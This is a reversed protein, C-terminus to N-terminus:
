CQGFEYEHEEATAATAAKFWRVCARACALVQSLACANTCVDVVVMMTRINICVCSCFNNFLSLRDGGGSGPEM